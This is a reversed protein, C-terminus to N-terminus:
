GGCSLRVKQSQGTMDGYFRLNLDHKLAFDYDGDFEADSYTMQIQLFTMQVSKIAM